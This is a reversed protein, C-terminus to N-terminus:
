WVNKMMICPYTCKIVEGKKTLIDNIREFTKRTSLELNDKM